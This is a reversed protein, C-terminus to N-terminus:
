VKGTSVMLLVPDTYRKGQVLRYDLGFFPRYTLWPTIKYDLSINGILQNTRNNGINYDNVAIVNQNLIGALNAPPVGAYTGDPNYIANFPYILASSFAPSGLFSGDTAFPVNQNFTSLNVSTNITLKDTAKNSLDFKLTGRKFDAKTVIAEQFSYSGSVRFTTKDNGGSASLEYNQISATRFAEDQWDYTPLAAIASDAAKDNTINTVPIRFENLVTRKVALSGSSLNNHIEM